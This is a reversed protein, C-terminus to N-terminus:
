FIWGFDVYTRLRDGRVFTVSLTRDITPIHLWLGAGRSRHWTASREGPYWVRGLGGMGHVGFDLATFVNASFARARLLATASAM